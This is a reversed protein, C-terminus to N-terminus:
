TVNLITFLCAQPRSSLIKRSAKTITQYIEPSTSITVVVSASLPAEAIEEEYIIDISTLENVVRQVM